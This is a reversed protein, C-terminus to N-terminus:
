RSSVGWKQRKQPLSSFEDADERLPTRLFLRLAEPGRDPDEAGAEM